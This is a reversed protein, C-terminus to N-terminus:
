RLPVVLLRDGASPDEVPVVTAASPARVLVRSGLLFDPQALVPLSAAATAGPPRLRVRWATGEARVDAELGDPVAIRFGAIGPIPLIEPGGVRRGAAEVVPVVGAPFPGDFVLYLFGGRMYVAAAMPQGPDVSITALAPEQGAPPPLAGTTTVPTTPAARPPPAEDRATPAPPPGSSPEAPPAAASAKAAPAAAPAKAAPAAAAAARGRPPDLIDLAVSPGSRFHRVTGGEPIGITVALRGADADQEVSAVNRPPSRRVKALDATGPQSFVIRVSTAGPEVTYDVPRTWDFVLRGRDPHTGGRVRIAQGAPAAQAPAAAVPAAPPSPPPREAPAVPAAGTAAASVLDFAVSPGNRFSRLTVPQALDFVVTRGDAEITGGAVYAPIAGLVPAVALEAPRDFRIRLRRGEVAADFEVAQPWDFVIRGFGDQAWARLGVPEAGASTTGALTSSALGLLTAALLRASIRGRRSM